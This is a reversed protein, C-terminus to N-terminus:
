ANYRRSITTKNVGLQEGIARFSMGEEDHLRRIEDTDVDERAKRGPRRRQEAPLRAHITSSSCGLDIALGKITEGEAYRRRVEETDLM